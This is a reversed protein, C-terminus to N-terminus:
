LSRLKKLAEELSPYYFSYGNESLKKPVAKQGTLLMESMEGLMLKLAFAPVPAWSPRGMAKGLQKCFQKMNVSDPATVNVPGSLKTNILAFHIVGTVDERHVWPFWQRGSGLPGGIFMKFPPIMKSLAGGGEGLVVGFRLIVVRVGLVEAERAEKEWQDCTDSLFGSGKPSSETVDGNEVNGYYGVASANILVSPKHNAQRIADVIAKTSSIRSDIIHKKQAASWRKAAISEGALNIVADVGDFEKAWDGLHKGDWIIETVFRKNMWKMKGAHRTLIVVRHGEGVLTQILAKGIFGTGGALIIKM